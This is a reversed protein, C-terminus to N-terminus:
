NGNSKMRSLLTELMTLRRKYTEPHVNSEDSKGTESSTPRKSTIDMLVEKDGTRDPPPCSNPAFVSQTTPSAAIANGEQTIKSDGDHPRSLAANGEWDLEWIEAYDVVKRLIQRNEAHHSIPTLGSAEGWFWHDSPPQHDLDSETFVVVEYGADKFLRLHRLMRETPLMPCPAVTSIRADVAIRLLESYLDMAPTLIKAALQNPESMRLFQFDPHTFALEDLSLRMAGGPLYDAVVSALLSVWRKSDGIVLACIPRRDQEVVRVSMLRKISRERWRLHELNEATSNM